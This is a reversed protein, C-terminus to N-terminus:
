VMKIEEFVIVSATYRSIGSFKATGCTGSVGELLIPDRGMVPYRDGFGRILM